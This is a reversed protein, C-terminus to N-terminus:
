GAHLRGADMRVRHQCREAVREDHTVLVLTSKSQKHLDFLLTLVKEGTVQDLNGTPEDGLLLSPQHVLARAIAVRQQEGGSLQTPYHQLRHSLGVAELMAIARERAHAQGAIELPLSVNGLASLGPLLHFSQFIIGLHESRWDALADSDMDGLRQSGVRIEGQNPRELGSLLLLLSTKGSGSPGTIALSEGPPVTLSTDNLVAVSGSETPYTLHIGSM